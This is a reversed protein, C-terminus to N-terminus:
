TTNPRPGRSLARMLISVLAPGAGLTTAYALGAWFLNGFAVDYDSGLRVAPFPHSYIAYLMVSSLVTSLACFTRWAGRQRAALRYILFAALSGLVASILLGGVIGALLGAILFIGM